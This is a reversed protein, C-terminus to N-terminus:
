RKLHRAKHAIQPLAGFLTPLRGERVNSVLFDVQHVWDQSVIMSKILQLWQQTSAGGPAIGSKWNNKTWLYMNLAKYRMFWSFTQLEDDALAFTSRYGRIYPGLKDQWDQHKQMISSFFPRSIDDMFWCYRPLDFDIFHLQKGNCLVNGKRHDGHILGYNSAQPLSKLYTLVAALENKIISSESTVYGDLEAIDNEWRGYHYLKDNFSQTALHFHGLMEGWRQYLANEYNFHMFTGPVEALVHALVSIGEEVTEILSDNDSAVLPCVPVNHNQLHQQFALAAKLESLPRLDAHTLRLYCIQKGRLFRYVLNIGSSVMEISNKDGHWFAIAKQPATSHKIQKLTEDWM